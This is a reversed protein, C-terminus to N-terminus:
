TAFQPIKPPNVVFDVVAGDPAIPNEGIMGPDAGDPVVGVALEQVRLSTQIVVSGCLVDLGYVVPVCAGQEVRNPPGGTFLYSSQTDQERSSYDAKPVPTLMQAIGGIVMSLGVLAIKGLLAAGTMHLGGAAWGAFAQFGPIFCCAIIAVGLLIKGMGGKKAGALTPIIHFSKVRGFGLELDHLTHHVGTDKPGRVLRYYGKKLEEGFGPILITLAQLAESPTRVDLDFKNGFRKRLRGHLYIAKM